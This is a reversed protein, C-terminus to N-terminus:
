KWAPKKEQNRNTQHDKGKSRALMMAIRSSLRGASFKIPTEASTTGDCLSPYFCTAWVKWKKSQKELQAPCPAPNGPSLCTNWSHGLASWMGAGALHFPKLFSEWRLRATQSMRLANRVVLSCPRLHVFIRHDWQWFELRKQGHEQRQLCEIRVAAPDLCDQTMKPFCTCLSKCAFPRDPPRSPLAAHTGRFSWLTINIVRFPDFFLLYHFACTIQWNWSKM